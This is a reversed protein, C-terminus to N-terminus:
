RGRGRPSFFGGRLNWRSNGSYPYNDYFDDDARLPKLYRRAYERHVFAWVIMQEM